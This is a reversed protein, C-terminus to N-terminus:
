RPPRHGRWQRFGFAAVASALCFVLCIGAMRNEQEIDEDEAAPSAPTNENRLIKTVPKWMGAAMRKREEIRFTVQGSEQNGALDEALVRILYDGPEEFTQQYIQCGAELRKKESNVQVGKLYEGKGDVSISVAALEEYSLGNEVDCIRIQPPTHDIQFVAEATSRNGAADVAEVQLMRVGEEEVRTGTRYFRGDLRIEYSYETADQVVDEKGYNWQFYPVYVGQLQDVYRIVPNSKDVIVQYRRESEHGALDKAAAYIEYIGDEELSVEWGNAQVAASMDQGGEKKELLKRTKDSNITWIELKRYALINEEKFDIRGKVAEGAIMQDHIGESQIVPAASDIYLLITQTHYNGAWDVAEAIVPIGNGHESVADVVFDAQMCAEGTSGPNEEQLVVRGASYCKLSRIGSSLGPDSVDVHVKVPGSRWTEAGGEAQIYIEPSINECLVPESVVPESQNGAQDVAYARIRGHFGPNVVITGNGGPITGSSGDDAQYCVAEMGSLADESKVTIELSENVIIGHRGVARNYFFRVKEPAKTDILFHLEKSFVNKQEESSDQKEQLHDGEELDGEESDDKETVDMEKREMWVLLVNDGDKLCGGPLHVAEQTTGDALELSGQKKTGDAATLEYRTVAENERHIIHIDPCSKYYGNKGDAEPYQIEPMIMDEVPKIVPKEPEKDEEKIDEGGETTDGEERDEGEGPEPEKESDGKEQEEKKKNESDEGTQEKEEKKEEKKEDKKEESHKARVSDKRGAATGAQNTEEKTGAEQGAHVTAACILVAALVSIGMLCIKKKM